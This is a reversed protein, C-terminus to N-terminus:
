CFCSINVCHFEGLRNAYGYCVILVPLRPLVSLRSGKPVNTVRIVVFAVTVWFDITVVM